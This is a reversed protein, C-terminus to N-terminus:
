SNDEWEGKTALISGKGLPKEKENIRVALDEAEAILLERSLVKDRSIVDKHKVHLPQDLLSTFQKLAYPHMGGKIASGILLGSPDFEIIGLQENTEKSSILVGIKTM